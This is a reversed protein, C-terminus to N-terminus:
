TSTDRSGLTIIRRRTTVHMCGGGRRTRVHM